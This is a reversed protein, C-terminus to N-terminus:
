GEDTDTESISERLRRLEELVSSKGHQNAYSYRSLLSGSRRNSASQFHSLNSDKIISEKEIDTNNNYLPTCLRISMKKLNRRKVLRQLQYLNQDHDLFASDSDDMTKNSQSSFLNRQKVTPSEKKDDIGGPLKRKRKTLDRNKIKRRKNDYDDDSGQEERDEGYKASFAWAVSPYHRRREYKRSQALATRVRWKYEEIWGQDELAQLDIRQVGGEESSESSSEYQEFGEEEETPSPSRKLRYPLCPLKPVILDEEESTPDEIGAKIREKRQAILRKLREKRQQPAYPDEDEAKGEVVQPDYYCHVDKQLTELASLYPWQSDLTFRLCEYEPFNLPLTSLNTSKGGTLKYWDTFAQYNALGFGDHTRPMKLRLRQKWKSHQERKAIRWQRIVKIRYYLLSILQFLNLSTYYGIFLLIPLLYLLPSYSELYYKLYALPNNLILKWQSLPVGRLDYDYDKAFSNIDEYVPDIILIPFLTNSTM